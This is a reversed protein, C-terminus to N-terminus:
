SFARQVIILAPVNSTPQPTPSTLPNHLPRNRLHLIKFERIPHSDARLTCPTKRDRIISGPTCYMRPVHSPGLHSSFLMAVSPPEITTKKSSSPPMYKKTYMDTCVVNDAVLGRACIDDELQRQCTFISRQIFHLRFLFDSSFLCSHFHLRAPFLSNCSRIECM